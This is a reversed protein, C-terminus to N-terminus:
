SDRDRCTCNLAEMKEDVDLAEVSAGDNAVAPEASASEVVPDRISAAM